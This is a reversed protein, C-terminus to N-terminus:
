VVKTGPNAAMFRDALGQVASQAPEGASMLLRLTAAGAPAAAPAAAAPKTPPAATAPVAPQAAAAPKTAAVPPATPPPSTPTPAPACAVVLFGVALVIRLLTAQGARMARVGGEPRASAPAAPSRM